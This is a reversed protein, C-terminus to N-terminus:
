VASEREVLNYTMVNLAGQRFYNCNQSTVVTLRANVVSSRPRNNRVLADYLVQVSLAGQQAPDQDVVATIVKRKLYALVQSSTDYGIIATKGANGSDEVAKAVDALQGYTMYIADPCYKEILELTDEYVHQGIRSFKYPGQISIGPYYSMEQRFGSIKQPIMFGTQEYTIMAVKGRGRLSLGVLEACIRGSRQYDSGIFCLRNSQPIDTDILLVQIGKSALDDIVPAMLEPHSPALIMGRMGKEVLQEIAAIQEEHRSIDTKIVEIQMGFDQYENAAFQIGKLVVEVYECFEGTGEPKTYVVVGVLATERNALSRAAQNPSYQMQAALEIIQRRLDEDVHPYGNLARSVTSRSVGLMEALSTATAKQRQM